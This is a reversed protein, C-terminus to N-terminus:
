KFLAATHLIRYSQQKINLKQFFFGKPNQTAQIFAEEQISEIGIIDEVRLALHMKPHSLVVFRVHDDHAKDSNPLSMVQCPDIVCVIQGHINCVGLLHNPAMPVPTLSQYHVVESVDTVPLLIIEHGILIQMVEVYSQNLDGDLEPSKTSDSHTLITQSSM